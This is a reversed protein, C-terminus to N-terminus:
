THEMFDGEKPHHKCWETVDAAQSVRHNPRTTLRGAPVPRVPRERIRQRRRITVSVWELENEGM